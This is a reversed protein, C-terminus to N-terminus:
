FILIAAAIAAAVAAIAAAVAWTQAKDGIKKVPAIRDELTEEPKIEGVFGKLPELAVVREGLAGLDATVGDNAANVTALETALDSVEQTGAKDALQDKLPEVAAAIDGAVARRFEEQRAAWQAAVTLRKAVRRKKAPVKPASGTTEETMIEKRPRRAPRHGNKEHRRQKARLAWAADEEARVQAETALPALFRALFKGRSAGCPRGQAM